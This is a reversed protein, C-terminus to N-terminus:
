LKEKVIRYIRINKGRYFELVGYEVLRNVAKYLQVRNLPIEQQTNKTLKLYNKNTTKLFDCLVTIHNMSDCLRVEFHFSKARAIMIIKRKFM